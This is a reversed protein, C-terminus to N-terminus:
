VLEIPLLNRLNAIPRKNPIKSIRTASPEILGLDRYTEIVPIRILKQPLLNACLANDIACTGGGVPL